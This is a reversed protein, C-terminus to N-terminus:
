LCRQYVTSNIYSKSEGIKVWRGSTEIKVYTYHKYNWEDNLIAKLENDLRQTSQKMKM